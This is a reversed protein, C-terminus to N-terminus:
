QSETQFKALVHARATDCFNELERLYKAREAYQLAENEVVFQRILVKYETWQQFNMDQFM